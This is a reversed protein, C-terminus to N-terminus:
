NGPLGCASRSRALTPQRSPLASRPRLHGGRVPLACTNDSHPDGRHRLPAPTRISSSVVRTLRLDMEQGTAPLRVHVPSGVTSRPMDTSPVQIRLDVPDIEEISVLPTAPM